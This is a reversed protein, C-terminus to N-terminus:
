HTGPQTQQGASEPHVGLIGDQTRAGDGAPAEVVDPASDCPMHATCCARRWLAKRKCPRHTRVYGALGEHAQDPSVVLPSTIPGESLWLMLIEREIPREAEAPTLESPQELMSLAEAIAELAAVCGTGELLAPIADLWAELTKVDQTWPTTTLCSRATGDLTSFTVIAVQVVLKRIKTSIPTAHADAAPSASLLPAAVPAHCDIELIPV